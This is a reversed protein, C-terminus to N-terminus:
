IQVKFTLAARNGVTANERSRYNHATADAAASTIVILVWNGLLQNMQADTFTVSYSAYTVSDGAPMTITKTFLAPTAPQNAQTITSETFPRGAQAGFNLTVTANQVLNGNAAQLTLTHVGGVATLGTFRTLNIEIFARTETASSLNSSQLPDANGHNVGTNGVTADTWADGWDDGDPSGSRSVASLPGISFTALDTRKVTDTTKFSLTPIKHADARAIQENLKPTVRIVDGRALQEPLRLTDRMAEGRAVTESMLFTPGGTSGGLISDGAPLQAIRGRLLVLPYGSPYSSSNVAGNLLVLPRRATM